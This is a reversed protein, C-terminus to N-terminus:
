GWVRARDAHQVNFGMGVKGGEAVERPGLTNFVRERM